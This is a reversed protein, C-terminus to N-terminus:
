RWKIHILYIDVKSKYLQVCQGNKRSCGVRSITDATSDIESIAASREISKVLREGIKDLCLRDKGSVM